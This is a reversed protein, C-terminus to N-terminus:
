HPFSRLYSLAASLAAVRNTVMARYTPNLSKIYKQYQSLRREEAALRRKAEAALAPNSLSRSVKWLASAFEIAETSNVMQPVEDEPLGAVKSSEPFLLAKPTICPAYPLAEPPMQREVLRLLQLAQPATAKDAALYGATTILTRRFQTVQSGTVPDFYPYSSVSGFRFDTAALRAVEAYDPGAAAPDLIATRSVTRMSPMLQSLLGNLSKDALTGIPRPSASAASTALIDAILLSEQRMTHSGPTTLGSNRLDLHLTDTDYVVFYRYGPLSPVSRQSAESAYMAKLAPLLEHETSDNGLSVYNYRGVALDARPVSLPLPASNRAWLYLNDTYTTLSLYPLSIVRVDPRVGEVEQMYWLPFTDNDGNVFMIANPPLATLLNYAMDPTATRHSRDHDDATQSLMQLPIALAVLAAILAPLLPRRSSMYRVLLSHLAAIGLGIWICFAYYSGLFAYDRDRAQVPTQNLYVVIALGTFFFLSAVVTAGCRGARGRRCQWCLGWLGFILPLFWYVNRGKNGAAIDAPAKSVNGLYLNDIANLGTITMGADPEGHGTFDNQRGVFNWFFYRWYMFSTQYVLFYQLNQMYTPRLLAPANDPRYSAVPNGATDVAWTVDTISDFSATTTGLWNLYSQVDSPTDSWLRPLWMKMQPVRVQSYSYDNLLYFDDTRSQLGAASLSDAHSAFPTRLLPRYGPRAKLYRPRPDTNYTLGYSLSSDAAVTQMKLRPAGFAYGRLLPAAGYQDRSYYSEFDFINSPANQNIPPNAWARIIIVGYSCFGLVYFMLGWVAVRCIRLLTGGSRLSLYLSLAILLLM